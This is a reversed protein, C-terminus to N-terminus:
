QLRSIAGERLIGVERRMLRTKKTPRPADYEHEVCDHKTESLENQMAAARIEENCPFYIVAVEDLDAAEAATKRSFSSLREAIMSIQDYDGKYMKLAEIVGYIALEKKEHRKDAMPMGRLRELGRLSHGQLNLAHELDVFDGGHQKSILKAYKALDKNVRHFSNYDSSNYWSAHKVEDSLAQKKPTAADNTVITSSFRLQKKINRANSNTTSTMDIEKKISDQKTFQHECIHNTLDNNRTSERM